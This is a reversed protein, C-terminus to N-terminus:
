YLTGVYDNSNHIEIDLWGIKEKVQLLPLVNTYSQDYLLISPNILKLWNFFQPMVM